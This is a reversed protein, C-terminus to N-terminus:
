VPQVLPVAEDAALQESLSRSEEQLLQNQSRLIGQDRKLKAIWRDQRQEKKQLEAIKKRLLTVQNHTQRLIRRGSELGENHEQIANEISKVDGKTSRLQDRRQGVAQRADELQQVMQAHHERAVQQTRIIEAQLRECQVQNENSENEITKRLQALARDPEALTENQEFESARQVCLIAERLKACEDSVAGNQEV